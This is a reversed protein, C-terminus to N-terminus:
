VIQGKIPTSGIVVLSSPQEDCVVQTPLRAVLGPTGCLLQSLVQKKRYYIVTIGILLCGALAVGFVILWGGSNIKVGETAVIGQSGAPKTTMASTAQATTGNAVPACKITNVDYRCIQNAPLNKQDSCQKEIDEDWHESDTCCWSCPHCDGTVARYYGANCKGCVANKTATCPSIEEENLDCITCPKCSSLDHKDSYSEGPTCQVCEVAVDGTVRSGCQPVMGQGEPCEPCDLCEVEKPRLITLQNWRCKRGSAVQASFTCLSSVYILVFLDTNFMSSM